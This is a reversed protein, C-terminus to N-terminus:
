QRSLKSAVERLLKERLPWFDVTPDLGNAMLAFTVERGDELTLFGVETRVGSMAGLKSRVKGDLYTTLSQRFREGHPGRRAAHNIGALDLPRIMNARALGSGDILRLGTFTIGRNEWYARIVESPERGLYNGLTLFLCQAELNDSVRHLHDVIEPLAASRHVVLPTPTDDAPVSRSLIKVGGRELIAALTEAALAPPDPIAGSVTFTEKGAPVTGRATITWGGPESYIMVGDGSGVPGTTVRLNWRSGEAVPGGGLFEAPDGPAAGPKFRLSLRNRELNVGYAGAGYANGIDGWNWHDSVPPGSFVSGDARVVGDIQKLGSQLLQAAMRQLDDGSFTPDGGGVLVLDGGIVGDTHISASSALSTEFRFEPGLMGLAAGTTVTKLASAPCLANAALPSAFLAQGSEDLVCFAVLAGALSPDAIWERFLPPLSADSPPDQGNAKWPVTVASLFALNLVARLIVPANV